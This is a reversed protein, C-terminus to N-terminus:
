IKKWKKGKKKESGGIMADSLILLGFISNRNTNNIINAMITPVFANIICPSNKPIFSIIRM